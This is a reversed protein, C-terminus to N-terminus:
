EDKDTKDNVLCDYDVDLIESIQAMYKRGSREGYLIRCVYSKNCGLKDALETNSMGLELMRKKIIIGCATLRKKEKM